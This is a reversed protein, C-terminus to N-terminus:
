GVLKSEIRPFSIFFFIDFNNIPKTYLKITDVISNGNKVRNNMEVIKKQFLMLLLIQVAICDFYDVSCNPFTNFLSRTFVRLMREHMSFVFPFLGRMAWKTSMINVFKRIKKQKKWKETTMSLVSPSFFFLMRCKCIM